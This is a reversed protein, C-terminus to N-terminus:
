APTTNAKIVAVDAKITGVDAKLATTDAKITGVDTKTSATDAKVAAVADLVPTLDTGGGKGSALQESDVTAVIAM